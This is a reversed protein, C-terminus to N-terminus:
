RLGAIRELDQEDRPHMHKLEVPYSAECTTM